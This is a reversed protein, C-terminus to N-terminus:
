QESTQTQRSAEARGLIWADIESELWGISRSRVGLKFPKPFTEDYKILRNITSRSLETKELVVPLRNINISTKM